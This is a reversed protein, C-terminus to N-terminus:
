CYALSFTIYTGSTIAVNPQLEVLGSSGTIRIVITNNASSGFQSRLYQTNAGPRYLEPATGLTYWTGSTLAQKAAVTSSIMKVSGDYTTLAVDLYKNTLTTRSRTNHVGGLNTLAQTATSAGTGGKSVPMPVELAALAQAFEEETGTYGASKAYGYATVLGLDRDYTAM